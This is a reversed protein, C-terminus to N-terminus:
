DLEEWVLCEKIIDVITKEGLLSTDGVIERLNKKSDFVVDEASIQLKNNEVPLLNLKSIEEQKILREGDDKKLQYAGILSAVDEPSKNIWKGDETYVLFDNAKEKTLVVDLLDSINSASGGGVCGILRSGLYLAGTDNDNEEYIFYLTDEDYYKLAKYAKVSGRRFKVYNPHQLM